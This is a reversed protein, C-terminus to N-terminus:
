LGDGEANPTESHRTYFSKFYEQLYSNTTEAWSYQNMYEGTYVNTNIGALFDFLDCSIKEKIVGIHGRHKIVIDHIDAAGLTKRLDAILTRIMSKVSPSDEKNEWIVSAIENMSCLAGQRNVLYALLEKTKSRYFVLPSGDM